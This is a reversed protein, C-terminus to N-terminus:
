LTVANDFVEQTGEEHTIVLTQKFGASLTFALCNTTRDVSCASFPEDLILMDAGPVFVKTLAIRIGLGLLDLASGSYSTYPKGNVVFMKGEREVVSPEGRMRTLYSSVSKLVMNWLRNAVLPRAKRLDDILKNNFEYEAVLARMKELEAKTSEIQTARRSIQEQLGSLRAKATTLDDRLEALDVTDKAHRAVLDGIAATLQGQDEQTGGVKEAAAKADDLRSAAELSRREAVEVAQVAKARELQALKAKQAALQAKPLPDEDTPIAGKWSPKPPYYNNDFEIYDPNGSFPVTRLITQALKLTDGDESLKARLAPLGAEKANIQQELAAADHQRDSSLGRLQKAEALKRENTERNKDSLAVPQSCHPCPEGDKVLSSELSEADQLASRAANLSTTRSAQLADIEKLATNLFAGSSECERAADKVFQELDALTGEWCDEPYQYRSLKDYLARTQAASEAARLNTDALATNKDLDAQDPQDALEQRAQALASVSSKVGEEASEVRAAAQAREQNRRHLEELEARKASLEKSVEEVGALAAKYSQDRLQVEAELEAVGGLDAGELDELRTVAGQIAIDQSSTDGYRGTAQIQSIFYDVIDLGSMEEIFEVAKGNGEDLLGTIEKQGVFMMKSAVGMRAGLQSEFWKTVETQGTVLPQAADHPLYIEAGSKGRTAKLKQGGFVFIGTVKCSSPKAGWSVFDSNRCMNAGGMLYMAAEILTTKGGENRGRIVTNGESFNVTLDTHQRFNQLTLTEIM